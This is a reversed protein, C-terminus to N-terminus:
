NDSWDNLSWRKTIACLKKYAAFRPDNPKLRGFLQQFKRMYWGYNLAIMKEKFGIFPALLNLATVLLSVVDNDKYNHHILQVSLSILGGLNEQAFANVFPKYSLTKVILECLPRIVFLHAESRNLDKLCEIIAGFINRSLMCEICVHSRNALRNLRIAMAKRETLVSSLLGNIYCEVRRNLPLQREDKPNAESCPAERIEEVCRALREKHEKKMHARYFAGRWWAQLKIVAKEEKSVATKEDSVSSEQLNEKTEEVQLTEKTRETEKRHACIRRWWNQIKIAAETELQKRDNNAREILKKIYKQELLGKLKLWHNATKIQTNNIEILKQM